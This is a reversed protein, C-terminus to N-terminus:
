ESCGDVCVQLTFARRHAAVFPHSGYDGENCFLQRRDFDRLETWDRTNTSFECDKHINDVPAHRAEEVVMSEKLISLLSKTFVTAGLAL